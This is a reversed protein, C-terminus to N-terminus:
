ALNYKLQFLIFFPHVAQLNTVVIISQMELHGRINLNERSIMLYNHSFHNAYAILEIKNNNIGDLPKLSRQIEM